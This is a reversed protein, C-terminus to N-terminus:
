LGIRASVLLLLTHARRGEVGFAELDRVSRFSAIYDKAMVELGFREAVPLALGAGLAVAFNTAHEDIANGLASAEISYHALGAGAQAFAIPASPGGAGLPIHGRIAADGFWLRAGSVGVAGILPVGTLRWEPRAHAGGLVVAFSPHVALSVQLSGTFADGNAFELGGPGTFYAGSTLFGGGAAVQVRPSLSTGQAHALDPALLLVLTLGARAALPFRPM